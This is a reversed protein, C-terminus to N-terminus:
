GPAGLALWAASFLLTVIVIMAAGFAVPLAWGQTGAFRWNRVPTLPNATKPLPRELDTTSLTSDAFPELAKALAEITQFRVTPDAQIARLVVRCLEPDVWPAVTEIAVPPQHSVTAIFDGLAPSEPWPVRGTLAEYLTVGVSFVDGRVDADQAGRLQEPSMYLPTGVLLGAQTLRPNAGGLERALGLDCLKPIIQENPAVHLFINAPKVDRHVIGAAHVSALGRCVDRFVRAAVGPPLAGRQELWDGLPRGRLREMVLYPAGTSDDVDAGLIGLVNPHHLLKAIQAERLFRRTAMPDAVLKALMSKIAVVTGHEDRAEHVRGMGGAGLLEGLTYRGLQPPLQTSPREQWVDRHARPVHELAEALLAGDFPKPLVFNAGASLAHQRAAESTLSSSVVVFLREGSRRAHRVIEIGDCDPMMWDTVLLDFRESSLRQKAENGSYALVVDFGKRELLRGALKACIPEDDVVLARSNPVIAM